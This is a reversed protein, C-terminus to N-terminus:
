MAEKETILGNWKFISIRPETDLGQYRFVKSINVPRMVGQPGTYKKILNSRDVRINRAFNQPKQMFILDIPASRKKLLTLPNVLQRPISQYELSTTLSPNESLAKGLPIISYDENPIHWRPNLLVDEKKNIKRRIQNSLILELHIQDVNIGGKHVAEVFESLFQEKTKGECLAKNNLMSKIHILASNLGNNVLSITFLDCGMIESVPIYWETCDADVDTSESQLYYMLPTAVYMSSETTMSCEIREGEKNVVYFTQITFTSDTESEDDEQMLNAAPIVIDVIEDTDRVRINTGDIMFYRHFNENFDIRQINAELLHKASLMRQTLQSSLLEGANQGPNINLNTFYLDGYCRRCIGNGYAHSNCTMPSYLYITRGIMKDHNDPNKEAEVTNLTFKYTKIDNPHFKFYRNRLGELTQMDPIYFEILNRTDCKYFKNENLFTSMNNLSLLRAFAGSKGVNDFNILQAARGKSLEIFYKTVNDLGEDIFSSDTVYNFVDGSVGNVTAGVGVLLERTQKPNFIEKTRIANAIGVETKAIKGLLKGTISNLEGVIKDIPIDRHTKAYSMWEAIEPDSSRLAIFQEVDFTNNFMFAFDNLDTLQQITDAIIQNRRIIPVDTSDKMMLWSNNIYDKLGKATFEEEWFYWRSTIPKDISTPIFWMILNMYFETLSLRIYEGDAFVVDVKASRVQETYLADQCLNLLQQRIAKLNQNNFYKTEFRLIQNPAEALKAFVGYMELNWEPRFNFPTYYLNQSTHLFLKAM